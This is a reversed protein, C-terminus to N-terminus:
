DGGMGPRHPARPPPYPRGSRASLLRSILATLHDVSHLFTLYINHGVPLDLAEVDARVAPFIIVPVEEDFGAGERLEVADCIVDLPAKSLAMLILGPRSRRAGELASAVDEVATVEYGEEKLTEKIVRRTEQEDHIVLLSCRAGSMSM